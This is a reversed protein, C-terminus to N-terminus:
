GLFILLFIVSGVLAVFYHIIFYGLYIAVFTRYKKRKLFIPNLFILYKYWVLSYLIVRYSM